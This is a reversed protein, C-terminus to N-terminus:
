MDSSKRKNILESYNPSKFFTTSSGYTDLDVQFERVSTKISLQNESLIEIFLLTIDVSVNDPIPRGESDLLFHDIDYKDFEITALFRDFIPLGNGFRDITLSDSLRDRSYYSKIATM